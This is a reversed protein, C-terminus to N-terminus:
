GFVKRPQIRGDSESPSPSSARRRLLPPRPTRGPRERGPRPPRPRPRRAAAAAEDLVLRPLHAVAAAPPPPRRARRGRRGAARPPPRHRRRARRRPHAAPPHPAGGRGAGRGVDRAIARIYTGSSCDVAFEVEPPRFDLLEVRDIRVPVPERAPSEGRRAAAYMREGGVKKASYLPPLQLREGAQAALAARLDAEGIERWADSEGLTAGTLDDTDTARGLRLVAQYSKPLATLYEALRTAGGICLLLLGSAFPDLTGTHGIRRVQLARRARAVVDHSTPGAPKDVALVGELTM